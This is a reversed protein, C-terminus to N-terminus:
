IFYSPVIMCTKRMYSTNIEIKQSWKRYCILWCTWNGWWADSKWRGCLPQLVSRLPKMDVAYQKRERKLAWRVNLAQPRCLTIQAVNTVCAAPSFSGASSSLLRLAASLTWYPSACHMWRMGTSMRGLQDPNYRPVLGDLRKKRTQEQLYFVSKKWM